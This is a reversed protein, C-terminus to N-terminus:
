IKSPISQNITGLPIFSYICKKMTSVYNIKVLAIRYCNYLLYLQLQIKLAHISLKKFYVNFHFNTINTYKICTNNKLLIQQM